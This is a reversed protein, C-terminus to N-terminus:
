VFAGRMSKGAVTRAVVATRGVRGRVNFGDHGPEPRCKEAVSLSYGAALAADKDNLGVLKELLFTRQLRTIEDSGRLQKTM